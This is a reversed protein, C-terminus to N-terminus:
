KEYIATLTMTQNHLQCQEPKDNFPAIEGYSYFGFLQVNAGLNEEVAELEEEIIQKMVVRRGVCSVVLGLAQCENVQNIEKAADVAGYILKHLEPKMLRATYGHPIDGAFTISNAEEDIQLLTRIVGETEGPARIFLPFRMGSIPLDKAFEGLYRKYLNLAPEHDLEFLTNGVARTVKRDAGFSSWGGHSGSSIVLDAGYFGVAVICNQRAPANSVVWTRMFREGDGAMGGTVPVGYAVKNIGKVLESGNLNLGDALVFIHRLGELPLKRLLDASLAEIDSEATFDVASLKVAGKELYVATAVVHSNAIAAGMISGASSAGIVNANPYLSRIGDFVSAAQIFDSEGFIFVVQCLLNDIIQANDIHWHNDCFSLTDLKM